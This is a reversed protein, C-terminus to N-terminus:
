SARADKTKAFRMYTAPVILLTLITSFALGSIITFGLPGWTPDSMTLPLIGIITTISTLLIPQFRAGAAELIAERKMMGGAINGNMRDMLIIANNVVIGALAVVGVFAPFSLPYGAITLGVFVGILALPITYIIMAVQRFSNFQLVLIVIILLIGILMARGLSKFSDLMEEMEGGYEVSYSSDDVSFQEQFEALIDAALYGVALDGSITVVRDGESHLISTPSPAFDIDVFYSLPYSGQQTLIPLALIEEMNTDSSTKLVIDIEEGDVKLTMVSMGAVSLRSTQALTSADVGLLDAKARDITLVFENTTENLSSVLNIAGPIDGIIAIAEDSFDQLKDLEPGVVRFEIASAGPPGSSLEIVNVDANPIEAMIARYEDTIEISTKDREERLNVTFNALNSNAGMSGILGGDAMESSNGVTTVFSEVEPTALLVAEVQEAVENTDEIFSGKPLEVEIFFYRYDEPPFMTAQLVGTAPLLTSAFFLLTMGTLLLTQRRKKGIIWGLVNKYTGRAREVGREFFTKKRVETARLLRSGIVPLLGLGVFLSALLTFCVTRPIHKVFEGIIGTMLLMPVFAAVTTLTGSILPLQYERVTELAIQKTSKGELLKTHMGETIVIGTDVLIGLALILAFLSLFNFTGGTASIATFSIMFTLPIALGAILAERFGLALFLMLMVLAITELGSYSLAGIQDRIDEAFDVTALVTVNEEEEVKDVKEYIEDAIAVIDGGTKKYINMSIADEPTSADVSIRSYQTVGELQYNVDGLDRLYIPAAGTRIVLNGIEDPVLDAAFRVTYQSEHSEVSGLPMNVEAATLATWIEFISVNYSSLKEPDIEIEIQQERTGTLSVDSVGGVSLIEAKLDEAINVLESHSLDASLTLVLIPANSYNLETVIPDMIGDPLQSEIKNVADQLERVREKIDADTEFEVFVMSMNEISSSDMAKVEEVNSIADEIPNTILEEVDLPSAGSYITTIAAYPIKVEPMAEIPLTVLSIVGTVVIAFILLLSFRFKNILFAWM